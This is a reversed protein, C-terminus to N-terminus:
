HCSDEAALVGLVEDLKALMKLVLRDAQDEEAARDAQHAEQLMLAQLDGHLQSLSDQLQLPLAVYCHEWKEIDPELQNLCTQFSSGALHLAKLKAELLQTLHRFLQVPQWIGSSQEWAGTDLEQSSRAESCSFTHSDSAKLPSGCSRSVHSSAAAAGRAPGDKRLLWPGGHLLSGLM